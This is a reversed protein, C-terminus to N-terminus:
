DAKNREGLKVTVEIEEAKMRVTRWLTVKMAM